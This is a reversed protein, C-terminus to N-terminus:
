LNTLGYVFSYGHKGGYFWWNTLKKMSLSPLGMGERAALSPFGMSERAALSPFGMGERRTLSLMPKSEGVALSPM